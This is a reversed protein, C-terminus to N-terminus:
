SESKDQKLLRAKVRSAGGAALVMVLPMVPVRYRIPAHSVSYTLAVVFVFAAMWPVWPRSRGLYLGLLALPLICGDSLLALVRVLATNHTYARDRPMLRWIGFFRGACGALFRGPREALLRKAASQFAENSRAEPLGSLRHFETDEGPRGLIRNQEETGLAEYPVKLAWYMQIGVLSSAPIFSRMVVLNRVVWIGVLAAVPAAFVLARKWRWPRGSGFAAAAAATAVAPNLAGNTLCMWGALGGAALCATPREADAGFARAGHRIVLLFVAAVLFSLLTERFSYASYYIFYPYLVATWFAFRGAWADFVLVALLCIMWATAASLVAQALIVAWPSRGSVAYLGAIFLTYGPERQATPVSPEYGYVGHDLLNVALTEFENSGGLRKGDFVSASFGLRLALAVALGLLLEKRSM